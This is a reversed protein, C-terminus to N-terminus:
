EVEVSNRESSKESYEGETGKSKKATMAGRRFVERVPVTWVGGFRSKGNEKDV